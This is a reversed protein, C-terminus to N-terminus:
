IRTTAYYNRVHATEQYGQPKAEAGATDVLAAPTALVPAAAVAGAASAGLMLFRRRNTDTAPVASSQPGAPDRHSPDSM